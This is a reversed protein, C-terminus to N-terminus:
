GSHLLVARGHPLHGTGFDWLRFFHRRTRRTSAPGGRGAAGGPLRDFNLGSVPPTGNPAPYRNSFNGIEVPVATARTVSTTPTLAPAYAIELWM